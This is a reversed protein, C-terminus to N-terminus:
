EKGSVVFVSDVAFSHTNWPFSPLCLCRGRGVSFAISIFGKKNTSKRPWSSVLSERPANSKLLRMNHRCCLWQLRISNCLSWVTFNVLVLQSVSKDNKCSLALICFYVYQMFLSFYVVYKFKIILIAHTAFTM